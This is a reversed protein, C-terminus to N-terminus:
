CNQYKWNRQKGQSIWETATAIRKERTESRKADAIWEVYERKCSPSFAAFVAIAKKNKQLAKAFEAPMKHPPKKPKAVKHRAAIPSTYEGRDVFAAAQHIWDLILKDSPLNSVDRIRGLSGMGEGRLVNAKRLVTGIEQGWFGFSCHENFASMNCLIVGRYEFFPRSWKITEEVEPCGSHVLKRLHTIIPQAFPRAKAVYADVKRNFNEAAMANSEQDDPDLGPFL